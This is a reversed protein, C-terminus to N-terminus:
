RGHHGPDHRGAKRRAHVAQTSRRGAAQRCQRDRPGRRDQAATQVHQQQQLTMPRHPADGVAAEATTPRATVGGPGGNFGVRNITTNNVIVTKDVYVNKIVTRNVPTVATNYDFTNGSWRGGAYGHGYYGAGYDIGGYYGVSSAWYGPNWGYSGSKWAWYGPTWLYGPQPAQTWIGPVWYYGAPGWAWYGPVWIDNQAPAPPLTYDPIAPPPADVWDGDQAYAQPAPAGPMSIEVVRDAGNWSVSAGLAQSVFRLPVYTSAGVIFPAVDITQPTNDVNAQTSGIRLSIERGNGTANIAGNDYVVSAGLNEFVGRLPVFVRGGQLIPSPSVDVGNGNITIAVQAEATLGLLLTLILSLGAITPSRFRHAHM